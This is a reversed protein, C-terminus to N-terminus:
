GVCVLIYARNPWSLAPVCLLPSRSCQQILTATLSSLVLRQRLCKMSRPQPSPCIPQLPPRKGSLDEAHAPARGGRDAYLYPVCRCVRSMLGSVPLAVRLQALGRVSMSGETAQGSQGMRRGTILGGRALARGTGWSVWRGGCSATTTIGTPSSSSSSCRRSRCTSTWRVCSGVGLCFPSMTFGNTLEHHCGHPKTGVSWGWPSIADMTDGVKGGVRGLDQAAERAKQQEVLRLAERGM